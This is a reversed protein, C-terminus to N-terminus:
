FNRFTIDEFNISKTKINVSYDVFATASEKVMAGFSNTGGYTIQIWGTFTDDEQDHLLLGSDVRMDYLTYSSPNKLRNKLERQVYDPAEEYFLNIALCNKKQEDTMYSYYANLLGSKGSRQDYSYFDIEDVVDAVSSTMYEEYEVKLTELQAINEVERQEEESLANYASEAAAIASGSAASITGIDDILTEVNKVAESKGCACLSLCMVFVLILVITKKM